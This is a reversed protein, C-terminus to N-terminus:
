YFVNSLSTQISILLAYSARKLHIQKWYNGSSNYRFNAKLPWLLHIFNSLQHANSLFQWILARKDKHSGLSIHSEMSANSLTLLRIARLYLCSYEYVISATILSLSIFGSSQGYPFTSFTLFVYFIIYILCVNDHIMYKNQIM